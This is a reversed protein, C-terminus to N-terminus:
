DFIITKGAEVLIRDELHWRVARALVNREISKGKERLDVVQDRHSIPVVDQDIIPGVDLTDTVYHATAGVIKVGLDYAQQYPDAGRFAPLFSHHINIIKNKFREVFDASLVQMYRALVILDVNADLMALIRQEAQAKTAATNPIHVFPVGWHEAMGALDQHNSIVQDVQMPLTKNSWRWLLELLVHDHRSVFISVKKVRKADSITWAMGFPNAVKNQFDDCFTQSQMGSVDKDSSSDACSFAVRMFLKGPQPESHQDLSSINMKCDTLFNAVAAVIGPQDECSLLIRGSDLTQDLHPSCILM